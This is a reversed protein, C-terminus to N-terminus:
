EARGTLQFAAWFFPHPFAERAKIQAQRLAERKNMSALNAYFAQMLTATAKDDVSWLSAVISRSGAYLFGRTLGVVDDGNSIKGLGTECASLTVLDAELNMSYLEGVTLVGDNDADKALYLGSKLPEDAQFKGHSAFHIRSFVSGAKKFNSESADKRVLVRSSPYLSAVLKAEGEAFALDLRPDDLDPNGLALLRGDKNQLVPHLFKLVSASPLFRLSHRDLLFKGEADQLAAFPLYHMAGHAVVIVNKSTILKELPQWLRQYLGRASQQWAQSETDELTKRLSQVQSALQTADLRLALLRERDLLFAYLDTGQYYYEVLTEDPGVLAKLEASPVSSVTVLTSLEPAASQLTERAVQLNRAGTTRAEPKASEDQIRANLDAADLQALMLGAQAPDPAAFDKKSALMDVLARSKSREIYDFAEVARGQEILVAILRAYVVQKDGVFGIKNAETSISARQREIAEVAKLYFPLAAGAPGEKEAVRGREYLAIWQIEGFDDLRANRLVVDLYTRAGVLDGTELLCKSRLLLKPLVIYTEVVDSGSFGWAINNLFYASKVIAGEDKLFRLAEAYNGLAAHIRAIANDRVSPMSGWGLFGIPFDELRKIQILANERDGSLAYALGLTEILSMRYTKAPWIGFPMRDQIREFAIRAEDIAKAYDGLEISAEARLMNALPTADSNSIDARDTVITTDGAHVQQELQNLCVALKRYEKLKSYARCLPAVVSTSPQGQEALRREALKALEAYRGVMELTTLKETAQASAEVGHFALTIAAALLIHLRCARKM